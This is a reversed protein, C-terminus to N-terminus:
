VARPPLSAGAGSMPQDYVSVLLEGGGTEISAFYMDFKPFSGNGTFQLGLLGKTIPMDQSAGDITAKFKWLGPINNGAYIFEIEVTIASAATTGSILVDLKIKSDGATFGGSHTVAMSDSDGPAIPGPFAAMDAKETFFSFPALYNSGFNRIEVELAANISNAANAADLGLQGAAIATGAIGAIAGIVPFIQPSAKPTNASEMAIMDALMASAADSSQTLFTVNGNQTQPM